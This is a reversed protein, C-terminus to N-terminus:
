GEQGYIRIEVAGVNGGTSTEVDFQLHRGTVDFDSPRPDAVTGAPFPGHTDAGDVTVTYTDTISTGDAMSRTLFEVGRIERATGLDLTVSGSDGDGDTAWETDTDGDVARAATFSDSFESSVDVIESDLALNDGRDTTETTTPGGDITFTAPESRYLHGDATTGQVIYQYDTGAEVDPLVVDHQDIGTGDMALSNNFRGYSDDTGWVIACIMPETTTVRFIARAPDSPDAEFTMDSAQVEEFPHVTVDGLGAAPDGDGDDGCAAALLAVATALALPLTRRRRRPAVPPAPRRDLTRHVPGATLAAPRDPREHAPPNM